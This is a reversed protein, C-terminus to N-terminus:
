NVIQHDRVVELLTKNQGRDIVKNLYVDSAVASIAPAHSGRAPFVRRKSISIMYDRAESGSSYYTKGGISLSSYGAALGVNETYYIKKTVLSVTAASIWYVELDEPIDSPFHQKIIQDDPDATVTAVDIIQLDVKTKENGGLKFFVLDIGLETSGELLATFVLGDKLQMVTEVNPSIARSSTLEIQKTKKDFTLFTGVIKQVAARYNHADEEKLFTQAKFQALRSQIETDVASKVPSEALGLQAFPLVFLSASLLLRFM